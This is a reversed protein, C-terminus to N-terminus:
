RDQLARRPLATLLSAAIVDHGQQNPHDGDAALLDTPDTTGDSGKFPTYLDVYTAGAATAAAAIEGNARRTVGASWALYDPGYKARGMTGDPFVNWYGTVLIHAPRGPHLLRLGHLIRALGPEIGSLEPAPCAPRCRRDHWRDLAAQLDNAGITVIVVDSVGIAARTPADQDLQDM